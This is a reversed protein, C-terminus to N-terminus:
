LVMSTHFTTVTAREGPGLRRLAEAFEDQSRAWAVIGRQPNVAVHAPAIQQLDGLHSQIWALYPDDGDSEALEALGRRENSAVLEELQARLLALDAVVDALGAVVVVPAPASLPTM